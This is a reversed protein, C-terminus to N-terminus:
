RELILQVLKSSIFKDQLYATIQADVSLTIIDGTGGANEYDGANQLVDKRLNNYQTALADDGGAVVASDLNTAM